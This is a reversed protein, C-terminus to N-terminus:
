LSQWANRTKKKKQLHDSQSCNDRSRSSWNECGKWRYLRKPHLHDIQVEIESICLSTAMAVLITSFPM